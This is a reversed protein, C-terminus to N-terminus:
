LLDPLTLLYCPFVFVFTKSFFAICKLKYGAAVRKEHTVLFPDKDERMLKPVIAEHTNRGQDGALERQWQFLAAGAAVKSADTMIVFEANPDKFDPHSRMIDQKLEQKISAM